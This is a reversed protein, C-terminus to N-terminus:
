PTAEWRRLRRYLDFTTYIPHTFPRPKYNVPEEPPLPKQRVLDSTMFLHLSPSDAAKNGQCRPPLALLLRDQLLQSIMQDEHMDISVLSTFLLQSRSVNVVETARTSILNKTRESRQLAEQIAKQSNFEAGQLSQLEAKLALTTNLEPRELCGPDQNSAAAPREVWQRPAHYRRRSRRQSRIPPSDRNPESTVTVVMPEEFCMQANGKRGTQGQPCPKLQSQNSQQSEKLPRPNLHTHGTKPAPSLTVSLDLEPCHTLSSSSFPLPLPSPQLSPPASLFFSSSMM